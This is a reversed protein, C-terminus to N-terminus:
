CNIRLLGNMSKTNDSKHDLASVSTMRAKIEDISTLSENEKRRRSKRPKPISLVDTRITSSVGFPNLPKVKRQYSAAFIDQTQEQSASAVSGMSKKKLYSLARANGSSSPVKSTLLQPMPSSSTSLKLSKPKPSSPKNDSDVTTNKKTATHRESHQLRSGHRDSEINQSPRKRKFGMVSPPVKSSVQFDDHDDDFSRFSPDRRSSSKLPGSQTPQSGEQCNTHRGTSNSMRYTSTHTEAQFTTTTVAYTCDLQGLQGKEDRTYQM